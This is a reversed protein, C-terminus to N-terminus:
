PMDPRQTPETKRVVTGGTEKMCGAAAVCPLISKTANM